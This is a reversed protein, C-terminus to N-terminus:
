RFYEVLDYADGQTGAITLPGQMCLEANAPLEVIPPAGAPVVYTFGSASDALTMQNQQAQNQFKFGIRLAHGDIAVTGGAGINGSYRKFYAM